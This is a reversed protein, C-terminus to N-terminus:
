QVLKAIDAVPIANAMKVVDDMSKGPASFTILTNNLPLQVDYDNGNSGSKKELLAKYGNIKIVKNDGGMGGIMPISLISNISAILPSNTIIELTANNSGSAAKGYERHVMVGTFGSAVSVNDQSSIAPLDDSMKAPLIKLIDKGTILDIEQLMQEMAFRADELKNAKYSTRADALLKDFQQGNSSIFLSVLLSFLFIKKM